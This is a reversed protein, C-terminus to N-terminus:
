ESPSLYGQPHVIAPRRSGHYLFSGLLLAGGAGLAIDALLMAPVPWALSCLVLGAPMTLVCGLHAAVCNAAHRPERRLRFALLQLILGGALAGAIAFPLLEWTFHLLSGFSIGTGRCASQWNTFGSHHAEDLMAGVAAFWPVIAALITLSVIRSFKGVSTDEAPRRRERM